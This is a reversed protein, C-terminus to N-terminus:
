KNLYKEVVYQAEGQQILQGHDLWIAKDCMKIIDAASHSVFLVTTGEGTLEEMRKHCKEQFAHDGVSLIEDIILIDPVRCTAIAFGLRAIMGSSFNKIAVNEFDRLEAFDIITDYHEDMSEHSYGLIAGNLYINEKASLEFDFGAGLEILPAVNGHVSVKGKTPKLVGSVIKLMTSKGSGNLGVLGVKEGRQIKFGVNKLAWFEQFKLQGKFLRIIYEKINDVKETSMNFLMSVDEAEIIAQTNPCVKQTYCCNIKDAIKQSFEISDDLPEDRLPHGAAKEREQHNEYREILYWERPSRVYASTIGFQRPVSVDSHFDDGIHLWNKVSLNKEEILYRFMNGTHKARSLEGSIYVEYDGEYSCEKLMKNVIYLPLYMDSLLVIKKNLERAKLFLPQIFPNPVVSELETEIEIRKMETVPWNPHKQELEHYIDDLRIDDKASQQRVENEINGRIYKFDEIHTKQAVIKFIDQPFLVKRLLLTDFVDFSIVEYNEIEQLLTQYLYYNKRLFPQNM